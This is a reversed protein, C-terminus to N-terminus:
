LLSKTWRSPLRTNNNERAQFFELVPQNRSDLQDIENTWLDASCCSNDARRCYQGEVADRVCVYVCVSRKAMGSICHAHNRHDVYGGPWTKQACVVNFAGLLSSLQPNEWGVKIAGVMYAAGVGTTEEGIESRKNVIKGLEATPSTLAHM